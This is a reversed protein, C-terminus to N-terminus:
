ISGRLNRVAKNDQCGPAQFRRVRVGLGGDALVGEVRCEFDKRVCWLMLPRVRSTEEKKGPSQRHQLHQLLAAYSIM